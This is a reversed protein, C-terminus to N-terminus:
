GNSDSDRALVFWVSIASVLLLMFAFPAARGYFAETTTSWIRTALTDYEIPALLLTAPLEKMTTLFVLAGASFVGSRMLPLTITALVKVPQSGLGRAADEVRPNIQLLATRLSGIGLPLFRVVYAFILMFLTQYLPLAFNAGFFVLSLGIVVGPLANGVFSGREVLISFRSPFRVILISVPLACFLAALAALASASLSNWAPRWLESIIIDGNQLGLAFWTGIVITPIGLALLTLGGTFALAPIRWIGLSARPIHRGTQVRALTDTRGRVRHEFWLLVLALLVLILALVAALYRNFSSTYQVYIARTFTSYQLMSVAGFDSLAYLAVLLGGAAVAPRLQPMTVRWFAGFPSDGLSRAAEELNPDLQRLSARVTLLVYPYSFLTLTLWAGFFGYIEPLEEIGLPAALFEQLLGRPGLAAVLAYAGVYSPVALPVATVVTWFRRLPIDSRITLWALPVAIVVSAATVSVALIISRFIVELFRPQLLRELQDPELAAARLLLYALPLLMALTVLMSAGYVLWRHRFALARRGVVRNNSASAQRANLM